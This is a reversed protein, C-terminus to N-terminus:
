RSETQQIPYTYLRWLYLVLALRAVGLLAAQSRASRNEVIVSQLNSPFFSSRPIM